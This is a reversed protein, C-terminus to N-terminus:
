HYSVSAVHDGKGGCMMEIVVSCDVELRRKGFSAQGEFMQTDENFKLEIPLWDANARVEISMSTGYCLLYEGDIEEAKEGEEDSVWCYDGRGRRWTYTSFESLDNWYLYARTASINITRGVKVRRRSTPASRKRKKSPRTSQCAVSGLQLQAEVEALRNRLAAVEVALGRVTNAVEAITSTGADVSNHDLHVSEVTSDDDGDDDEVSDPGKITDDRPTADPTVSKDSIKWRHEVGPTPADANADDEADNVADDHVGEDDDDDAYEEAGPQTHNVMSATTDVGLVDEFEYEEDTDDTDDDRIIFVGLDDITGEPSTGRFETLIAM